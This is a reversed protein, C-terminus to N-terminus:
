KESYRRLRIGRPYKSNDNDDKGRPIVSETQNNDGPNCDKLRAILKKNSWYPIEYFWHTLDLEQENQQYQMHYLDEDDMNKLIQVVSKSNRWNRLQVEDLM